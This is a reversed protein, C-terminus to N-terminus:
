PGIIFYYDYGENDPRIARNRFSIGHFIQVRTEVSRPLIPKTNGVFLVDFDQERIQPVSLAKEKPLGFPSYMAKTDYAVGSETEVELGGSVFVEANHVKLLREYLPRFCLFHVPAYGTFLIRLNSDSKM